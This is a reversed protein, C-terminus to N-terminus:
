LSLSLSVKVFMWSRMLSVLFYCFRVLKKMGHITIEFSIDEEYNNKCVQWNDESDMNTCGNFSRGEFAFPFQCIKGTKTQCALSNQKTEDILLVFRTVVPGCQM